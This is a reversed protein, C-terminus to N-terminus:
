SRTVTSPETPRILLLLDRGPPALRPVVILAAGYFVFSVLLTLPRGSPLEFLALEIGGLVLALTAVWTLDPRELTRRIAALVVAIAVAAITRAAGLRAPDLELARFGHVFLEAAGAGALLLLAAAPVRLAVGDAVAPATPRPRPVTAVYALVILVVAIVGGPSVKGGFSGTSLEAGLGLLAALSWLTLPHSRRGVLVAIVAFGSWLVGRLDGRTLLGVASSLLGLSLAAYFLFDLGRDGRRPVVWGAFAVALLSVALMAAAVAGTGSGADHALRLGGGVAIALGAIAQAIEFPGLPRAGMTRSLVLLLSLVALALFVVAPLPSATFTGRLLVLDLLVAPVWRLAPWREGLWFFTLAALALLVGTLEARAGTARLLVISVLGCAAVGVWALWELQDQWAVALLLGTFGVLTLAAVPTSMAGLRTTAELILSYAILAAVVAHFGASLRAGAMAARHALVMWVAAFAVGMAVGPGASLVGGDTLARILFAGGLVLCSRGLFTVWRNVEARAPPAGLDAGPLPWTEPPSPLPAGSARQELQEVRETLRTVKEELAQLRSEM